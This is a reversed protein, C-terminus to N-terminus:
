NGVIETDHVSWSHSTVMSPLVKNNTNAGILWENAVAETLIEWVADAATAISADNGATYNM